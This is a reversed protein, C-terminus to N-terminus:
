IASILQYFIFILLNPKMEICAQFFPFVISSLPKMKISAQFLPLVISSLTTENKRLNSVFFFYAQSLYMEGWCLPLLMSGGGGVENQGGVRRM